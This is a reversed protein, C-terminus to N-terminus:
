YNYYLTALGVKTLVRLMNSVIVDPYDPDPGDEALLYPIVVISGKSM